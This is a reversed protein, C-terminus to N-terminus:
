ACCEPYCICQVSYKSFVDSWLWAVQTLDVQATCTVATHINQKDTAAYCVVGVSQPKFCYDNIESMFRHMPFESLVSSVAWRHVHHRPGEGPSRFLQSSSGHCSPSVSCWDEVHPGEVQNGEAEEWCSSRLTDWLELLLCKLLCSISTALGKLVPDLCRCLM